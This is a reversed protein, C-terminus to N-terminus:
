KSVSALNPLREIQGKENYNTFGFSYANGVHTVYKNLNIGEANTNRV